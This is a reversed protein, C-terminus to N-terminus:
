ENERKRVTGVSFTFGCSECGITYTGKPSLKKSRCKPCILQAALEEISEESAYFLTPSRFAKITIFLLIALAFGAFVLTAYTIIEM